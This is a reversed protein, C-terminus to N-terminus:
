PRVSGVGNSPPKLSFLIVFLFLPLWNIVGGISTFGLLSQPDGQQFILVPV